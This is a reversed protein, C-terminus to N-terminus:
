KQQLVTVPALGVNKSNVVVVGANYYALSYKIPSIKKQLRVMSKVASYIKVFSANYSAITPNAGSSFL